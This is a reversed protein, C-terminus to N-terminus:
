EHDVTTLRAGANTVEINLEKARQVLAVRARAGVAGCITACWQKNQMMLPELDAVTRVVAQFKGSSLFFPTIFSTNLFLIQHFMM